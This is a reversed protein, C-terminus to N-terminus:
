RMSRNSARFIKIQAMWVSTQQISIDSEAGCFAYIGVAVYGVLPVLYALRTGYGLEAILGMVPTLVAGGVISMILLSGGLEPNSGLGKIGLAFITPFMLSMFFSTLFIAWLGIWGPMVIGVSVLAINALAYSGLMLNPPFFRMLYVSTFRGLVFAVLTGTLFYGAGKEPEHTTEQIYQIFYSWTGVQAGVYMFQTFIALLFHRYKLLHLFRSAKSDHHGGERDTQPFSTLIILITLILGAAGLLLYPQVVRLIESHLYASYLHKQKLLDVAASNLEIGSFIFTTGVLAGAISGISNFAQSFNLRRESTAPNGLQAIFPNSATELFALGSAVVFLALLFLRYQGVVAAPWFLIAGASFLVLGILIGTKYGFRRVILAAPIALFFYGM